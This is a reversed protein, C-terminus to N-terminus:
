CNSYRGARRGEVADAAQIAPVRAAEMRVVAAEAFSIHTPPITIKRADAAEGTPAVATPAGTTETAILTFHSYFM